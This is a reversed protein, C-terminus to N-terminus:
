HSHARMYYIYIYIYILNDFSIGQCPETLRASYLSQTLGMRHLLPTLLSPTRAADMVTTMITQITIVSTYYKQQNNRLYAEGHYPESKSITLSVQCARAAATAQALNGM